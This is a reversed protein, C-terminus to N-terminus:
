IVARTTLLGSGLRNIFSTQGGPPPTPQFGPTVIQAFPDGTFSVTDTSLRNLRITQTVGGAGANTVNLDVQSYLKDGPAFDMSVGTGSLSYNTITNNITQGTLLMQVILSYVGARYRFWREYIDATVSGGLTGSTGLAAVLRVIANWSGAQLTQNDLTSDDLFFGHGDPAPLSGAAAWANATGQAWVEGYGTATGLQTYTLGSATAQGAHYLQNASTLVASAAASLYLTLNAM